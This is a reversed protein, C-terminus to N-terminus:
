RDPRGAQPISRRPWSPKTPTEAASDSAGARRALPAVVGGVSTTALIMLHVLLGLAFAADRSIGFGAAIEVVTLEFTGVYGPGSPIITVLAM